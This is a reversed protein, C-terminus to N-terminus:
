KIDMNNTIINMLENRIVSYLKLYVAPLKKKRWYLFM